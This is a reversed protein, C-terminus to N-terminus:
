SHRLQDGIFHNFIFQHWISARNEAILPKQALLLVNLMSCETNVAMFEMHSMKGNLDVPYQSKVAVSFGQYAACQEMVIEQIVPMDAPLPIDMWLKM